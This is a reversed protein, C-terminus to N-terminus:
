IILNKETRALVIKKPEANISGSKLAAESSSCVDLSLLLLWYELGEDSMVAM